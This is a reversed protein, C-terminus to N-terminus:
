AFYFLEILLKEEAKWKIWGSGANDGHKAVDWSVKLWEGKIRVPHFAVEKPL